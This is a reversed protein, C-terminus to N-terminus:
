CDGSLCVVIQIDYLLNSSMVQLCKFDDDSNEVQAKRLLFYAQKSSM